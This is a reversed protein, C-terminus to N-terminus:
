EPNKKKHSPDLLACDSNRRRSLCLTCWIKALVSKKSKCLICKPL